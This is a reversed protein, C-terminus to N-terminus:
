PEMEKPLVVMSSMRSSSFQSLFQGLITFLIIGALILGIVVNVVTKQTVNTKQDAAAGGATATTALAALIGGPLLVADGDGDGDGDGGGGGLLLARSGNESVVASAAAAAALLNHQSQNLRLPLVDTAETIGSSYEKYDHM